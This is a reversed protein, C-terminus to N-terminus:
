LIVAVPGYSEPDSPMVFPSFFGDGEFYDRMVLQMGRNM